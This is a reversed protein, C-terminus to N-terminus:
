SATIQTKKNNDEFAERPPLSESKKRPGPLRQFSTKRAQLRGSYSIRRAPVHAAYSDCVGSPERTALRTKNTATWKLRFMPAITRRAFNAKHRSLLDENVVLWTNSKGQTPTRCYKFQTSRKVKSFNNIAHIHLKNHWM